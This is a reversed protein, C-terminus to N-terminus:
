ADRSEGPPEKEKPKKPVPVLAMILEDLAATIALIFVALLIGVVATAAICAMLLLYGIM